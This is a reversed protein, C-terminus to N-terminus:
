RFLTRKEIFSYSKQFIQHLPHTASVVLKSFQRVPLRVAPEFGAEVANKKIFINATKFLILIKAGAKMIFSRVVTLFLNFYQFIDPTIEEPHLTARNDRRSQSCSTAPEFGAVGVFPIICTM